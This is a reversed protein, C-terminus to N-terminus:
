QDEWAALYTRATAPGFWAEHPGSHGARRSCRFPDGLATRRIKLCTAFTPEPDSDTENVRDESASSLRDLAGPALHADHPSPDGCNGACPTTLSDVELKALVARIGARLEERWKDTAPRWPSWQHDHEHLANAFVEALEDIRKEDAQKREIRDAEAFLTDPITMSGISPQQETWAAVARLVEPTIEIDSM